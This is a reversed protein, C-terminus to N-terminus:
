IDKLQSFLTKLGEDRDRVPFYEMGVGGQYGSERIARLIEPYDIESDTMPEHRGPYGAMHFHGIRDINKVLAEVDLSGMVYQHYLDYLVKVHGDSVEDVIRFAEESSWLYYGPHDIRTNLPEIALTVGYERLVPICERLGEVISDHQEQRPVGRREQGTQSLITTCGLKRCTQATERLGELYKGRCAPDTLSEFRTCLAAMSLNRPAQRYVEPGQEWWGWIEYHRFGAGAISAFAEQVKVGGFVAPICISYYM